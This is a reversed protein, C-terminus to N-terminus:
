SVVRRDVVIHDIFETFKNDGCSIPMDQTVTTLDAKAPEGNDLKAWVRGGSQNLRRKFDELV